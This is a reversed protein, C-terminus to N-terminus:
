FGIEDSEAVETLQANRIGDELISEKHEELPEQVEPTYEQVFTSTKQPAEESPPLENPSAM